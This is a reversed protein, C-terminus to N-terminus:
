KGKCLGQLLRFFGLLDNINKSTVQGKLKNILEILRDTLLENAKPSNLKINFKDAYAKIEQLKKLAKKDHNTALNKLENELQSLLTYKACVRFRKFRTVNNISKM